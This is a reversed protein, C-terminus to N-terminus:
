QWTGVDVLLSADANSNNFIDATYVAADFANDGTGISRYFRGNGTVILEGHFDDQPNATAIAPGIDTIGTTPWAYGFKVTQGANVWFLGGVARFMAM